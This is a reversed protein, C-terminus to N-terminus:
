TYIKRNNCKETRYIVTIFYILCGILVVQMYLAEIAFIYYDNPFDVKYYM